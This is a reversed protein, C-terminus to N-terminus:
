CLSIGKTVNPSLTHATANQVSTCAQLPQILMSTAVYLLVSLRSNRLTKSQNVTPM